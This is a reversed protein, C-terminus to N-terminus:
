DDVNEDKPQIIDQIHGAVARSIQLVDAARDDPNQQALMNWRGGAEERYIRAHWYGKRWGDRGWYYVFDERADYANIPDSGEEVDHDRFFQM